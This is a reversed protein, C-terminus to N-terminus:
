LPGSVSDTETVRDFGVLIADHVPPAVAEAMQSEQIPATAPTALSVSPLPESVLSPQTANAAGPSTARIDGVSLILAAGVSPDNRTQGRPGTGSYSGIGVVQGDINWTCDVGGITTSYSVSIPITIRVTGNGYDILSGDAAQNPGNLGSVDIPGHGLTPHSYTGTGASIAITQSSAFGFSGDSNQYLTLASGGTDANMHYDRIAAVFLGSVDAQIGYIAPATGDSGDSLPAWNGTNAACFDNGMQNFVITGNAEDIDAEFTGFYTTSLAGHGQEQIAAGGIAGSLVLVSQDQVESFYVASPVTRDELAELHPLANVRFSRKQRNVGIGSKAFVKWNM